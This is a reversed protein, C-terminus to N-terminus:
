GGLPQGDDERLHRDFFTLIRRWSDEGSPQHYKLATLQLVPERLPGLNIRNMFSHGAHYTTDPM